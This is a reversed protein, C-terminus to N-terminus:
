SSPLRDVPERELPAEATHPAPRQAVDDTRAFRDTPTPTTATRPSAAARQMEERRGYLVAAIAGLIGIALEGLAWGTGALGLGFAHDLSITGAGVGALCFVAAALVVNYEYGGDTSWPGNKGHVTLIAVIMVATIAAAAFPTFLGFVLLLGGAFESVGAATAHQRGPKMGLSEFFQGTGSLGHGGFSGFLKQAGHGIFFGGVALRLILLGLNM